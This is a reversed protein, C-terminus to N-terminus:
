RPARRSIEHIYSAIVGYAALQIRRDNSTM